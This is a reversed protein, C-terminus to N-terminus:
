IGRYLFYLGTIFRIGAMDQKSQSLYMYIKLHDYLEQTFWHVHYFAKKDHNKKKNIYLKM